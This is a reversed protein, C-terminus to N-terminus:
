KHLNVLSGFWFIIVTVVDISLFNYNNPCCHTQIIRFLFIAFFVSDLSCGLFAFHNRAARVAPTINWPKQVVPSTLTTVLVMSLLNLRLEVWDPRMLEANSMPVKNNIIGM